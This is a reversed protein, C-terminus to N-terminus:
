SLLSWILSTLLSLLRWIVFFGDVLVLVHAGEACFARKKLQSWPDPPLVGAFVAGYFGCARNADILAGVEWLGLKFAELSPFPSTLM